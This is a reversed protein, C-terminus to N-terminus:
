PPCEPLSAWGGDEDEGETSERASAVLWAEELPAGVAAPPVAPTPPLPPISAPAPAPALPGCSPATGADVQPRSGGRSCRAQPLSSLSPRCRACTPCQVQLM